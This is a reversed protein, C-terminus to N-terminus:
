AGGVRILAARLGTRFVALAAADWGRLFVTRESVPLGSVDPRALVTGGERNTDEVKAAADILQALAACHERIEEAVGVFGTNGLRDAIGSLADVVAASM